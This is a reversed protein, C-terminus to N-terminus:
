KSSYHLVIAVLVFRLASHFAIPNVVLKEFWDEKAGPFKDKIERIVKEGVEWPQKGEALYIRQMGDVVFRFRDRVPFFWRARWNM